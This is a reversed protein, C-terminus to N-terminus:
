SRLPFFVHFGGGVVNPTEGGPLGGEEFGRTHEHDILDVLERATVKVEGDERVRGNLEGDDKAVWEM